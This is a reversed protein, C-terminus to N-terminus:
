LINVNVYEPDTVYTIYVERDPATAFSGNPQYDWLKKTTLNIGNSDYCYEAKKSLTGSGSPWTLTQRILAPVLANGMPQQCSNNQGNNYEKTLTLLPTGSAAGRFDQIQTPWAGGGGNASAFFFSYVHNDSATTSGDSYPPTTVTVTLPNCPATCSTFVPTLTWTNGAVTRSTLWRNVQNPATTNTYGYTVQGGTPLTMGTIQGYTDYQFQYSTSDPLLISQLALGTGTFDGGIGFQTALSISATTLTIRSRSGQPNLYDVFVQNGSSTVLVPIRVLTDVLNGSSYTSFNGNTDLVAPSGATASQPNAVLTGDPAYVSTFGNTVVFKYGSNDAAYASGTAVDGGCVNPSSHLKFAKDARRNTGNPEQYAFNSYTTRLQCDQGLSGPICSCQTFSQSNSTTGPEDGTILRWGIGVPSSPVGNPQWPSSATENNQNFTWVRSDYVLRAHYQLKDGRQAYSGIPIELHLAGNPINIFGHEVPLAITFAPIGPEDMFSQQQQAAAPPLSYLAVLALTLTVLLTGSKM